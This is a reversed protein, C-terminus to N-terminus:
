QLLEAERAVPSSEGAKEALEGSAEESQDAADKQISEKWAQVDSACISDIPKGTFAAVKTIMENIDPVHMPAPHRIIARDKTSVTLMKAPTANDYVAFVDFAIIHNDQLAEAELVTELHVSAAAKRLPPRPKFQPKSM